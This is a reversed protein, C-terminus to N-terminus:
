LLCYSLLQFHIAVTGAVVTSVLRRGPWRAGLEGPVPTNKLSETDECEGDRSDIHDFANATTTRLLFLPM